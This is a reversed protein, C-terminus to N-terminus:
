STSPYCLRAARRVEGRGHVAVEGLAEAALQSGGRAATALAEVIVVCDRSPRGWPRWLTRSDLAERVLTRTAERAPLPALIEVIARRVLFNKERRLAGLLAMIRGHEERAAWSRAAAIRVEPAPDRIAERLTELVVGDRCTGLATVAGARVEPEKRRLLARLPGIVDMSCTMMLLHAAAIVRDPDDSGLAGRLVPAADEMHEVVLTLFERSSPVQTVYKLALEVSDAGGCTMLAAVRPQTGPNRLAHEVLGVLIPRTLLRRFAITWT